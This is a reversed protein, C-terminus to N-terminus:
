RTRWVAVATILGLGATPLWAVAVASLDYVEGSNELTRNILFFAVGTLIGAVTRAGAGASRLPGLAFPVALVCVILAAVTRSIRSWFAIEYPKAELGNAKLHAVYAFLGRAPLSNPEIVALGLFEPNVRTDLSASEVKAATTRDAGFRTEAVNSLEWTQRDGVTGTEARLVSELGGDSGFSLVYVGGFLNDASQQQINIFRRGDKVWANRSGALDFGAFKSFTKLQRAYQDLPPAVYEGLVVMMGAVVVGGLAAGYGIRWTSVGAARIVTLESDTALNGLGFIAGILAGIPLLEFAQRPLNLATFLFADAVNYAGTGIDDQQGLFTFLTGLTLLVGMVLFTYWLVTRAIYRDLLSIM